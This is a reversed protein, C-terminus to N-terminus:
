FIAVHISGGQLYVAVPKQERSFGVRFINRAGTDGEWYRVTEGSTINVVYVAGAVTGYVLSSESVALDMPLSELATSLVSCVPPLTNLNWSQACGNKTGAFLTDRALYVPAVRVEKSGYGDLIAECLGTTLNWVRIYGDEASTVARNRNKKVFHIGSTHGQLVHICEGTEANWVRANNDLSGSIILNDGAFLCRIEATHGTLTKRREMSDGKLAWIRLYSDKSGSIITSDDLFELCRVGADHAKITQLVAESHTDILHIEGNLSSLVALKDRSSIKWGSGVQAIKHVSAAELDAKYVAGFDTAILICNENTCISTIIFHYVSPFVSATLIQPQHSTSQSQIINAM